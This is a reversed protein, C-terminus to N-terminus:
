EEKRHKQITVKKVTGIQIEKTRRMEKKTNGDGNSEKDAKHVNAESKKKVRTNSEEDDNHSSNNAPKVTRKKEKVGGEHLPM